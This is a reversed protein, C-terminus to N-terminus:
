GLKGYLSNLMLKITLKKAPNDKYRDKLSYFFEMYDKFARDFNEYRIM